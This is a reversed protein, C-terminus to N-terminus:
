GARSKLNPRMLYHQWLLRAAVSRWPRWLEGLQELEAATPRAHLRKIERAALQLALDGVPWADPRLMARLLYIEATWPGVGKLRTLTSRATEDDLRDLAAFDLEGSVVARASLRSYLAKQRSFGFRRLAADDHALFSEPTLSPAAALLRGFAVGASTLSVQQELIILVLAPFGPEREWMPPTGYEHAIRGLDPDIRSLASVGRALSEETLKEPVRSGAAANSPM